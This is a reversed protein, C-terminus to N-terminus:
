FGSAGRLVVIGTTMSLAAQLAKGLVRKGTSNPIFLIDNALLQVDDSKRNLIKKVNVRIERSRGTKSSKRIIVADQPKADGKVGGALALAKLTTMQNTDNQIVFGGPRGVAGVVYVIGARPVAVVDGGHLMVNAQPNGHDILQQLNIRQANTKGSKDTHSITVYNGAANKLGGAASLVELLSTPRVAQYVMPHEVAGIVTIPESMRQVVFVSVQPHSVLGRSKLLAAIKSQLQYSTLGAARIRRPILPMSIYGSPDIRIKRSLEPIDFVDIQILDGTGLAAEAPAAASASNALLRIKQNTQDVTELAPPTGTQSKQQPAQQALASCAALAVLSVVATFAKVRV